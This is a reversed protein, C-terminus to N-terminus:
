HTKHWNTKFIIWAKRLSNLFNPSDQVTIDYKSVIINQSNVLALKLVGLKTEQVSVQISPQESTLFSNSFKQKFDGQANLEYVYYKENSQPELLQLNM